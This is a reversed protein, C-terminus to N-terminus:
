TAARPADCCGPACAARAEPPCCQEIADALARLSRCMHEYRIAYFTERGRRSREVIGSRDLLQLHRSVVSLDVACCAAIETVSCPRGCKALCGVLLARTPDCLARFLDTDLTADIPRCCAAAEAPSGPNSNCTQTV